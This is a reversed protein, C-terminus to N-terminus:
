CGDFRAFRQWLWEGRDYVVTHSIPRPPSRSMEVTVRGAHVDFDSTNRDLFRASTDTDYSM